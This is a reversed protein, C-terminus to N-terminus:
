RRDSPIADFLSESGTSSCSDSILEQNKDWSRVCEVKDWVYHVEEFSHGNRFKTKWWKGDSFISGSEYIQGQKDYKAYSTLRGRSYRISSRMVGHDYEERTVHCGKFMRMSTGPKCYSFHYNSGHFEGNSDFNMVYSPRLEIGSSLEIDGGLMEKKMKGNVFKLKPAYYEAHSQRVGELFYEVEVGYERLLIQHGHQPNDGTSRVWRNNGLVKYNWGEKLDLLNEVDAVIFKLDKIGHSGLVAGDKAGALRGEHYNVLKHDFREFYWPPAYQVGGLNPHPKIYLIYEEGTEGFTLGIGQIYVVLWLLRNM